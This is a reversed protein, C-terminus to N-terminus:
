AVTVTELWDDTHKMTDSDYERSMSVSSLVSSPTILGYYASLEEKWLTNRERPSRGFYHINESKSNADVMVGRPRSSTAYRWLCHNYRFAGPCRPRCLLDREWALPHSSFWRVLILTMKDSPAFVFMITSYYEVHTGVRYLM